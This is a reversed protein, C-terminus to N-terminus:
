QNNLQSSHPARTSSDALEGVQMNALASIASASESAASSAAKQHAAARQLPEWVPPGYEQGPESMQRAFTQLAQSIYDFADSLITVARQKSRLGGSNAQSVIRQMATFMDEGAGAPASGNSTTVPAQERAPQPAPQAPPREERRPFDIVRGSAQALAGTASPAVIVTSPLARRVRSAVKRAATGAGKAARGASGAVAARRARGARRRELWDASRAEAWVQQAKLNVTRRRQQVGRAARAAFPTGHEAIRDVARSAYAVGAGGVLAALLLAGFLHM